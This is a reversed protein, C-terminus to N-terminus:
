KCVGALTTVQNSARQAANAGAILVSNCQELLGGLVESRDVPCTAGTAAPVPSGNRKSYTSVAANLVRVRDSLDVIASNKASLQNVASTIGDQYEKQKLLAEDTFHKTADKNEVKLTTVQDELKTIRHEEIGLLGLLMMIGVVIGAYLYTM